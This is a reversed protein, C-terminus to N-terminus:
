RLWMRWCGLAPMVWWALVTRRSWLGPIRVPIHVQRTGESVSSRLRLFALDDWILLCKERERM